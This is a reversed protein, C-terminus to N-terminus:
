GGEAELGDNRQRGFVGRFRENVHSTGCPYVKHTRGRVGGRSKGRSPNPTHRREYKYLDM